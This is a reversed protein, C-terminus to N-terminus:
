FRRRRGGREAQEVMLDLRYLWGEADDTVVYLLGDPAIRVDRIRGIEGELFRQESAVRNQEIGLWILAKGALAGVWLVSGAHGEAIALGSPAVRPTWVHLPQEMGERATGGPVPEGSYHLGHSIVPWGYNRGAVILNLEDGGLPGNEHSWLLNSRQDLALGLPNRHGYSWIEPRAGPTGVFPNDDPVSGDTRIRVIKGAHHSLDQAREHEWRDGLTLFLHGDGTVVMRGGFQQPRRAPTSEFIVAKDVLAVRARDLRARLVRVRSREETGYVYSLYVIGNRAFGHDLAVDLLGAQGETLISPLGAVERASLGPRILQLRGARETLLVSGDPLFAFSWPFEFPGAIPEADFGGNFEASIDARPDDKDAEPTRAAAPGPPDVAVFSIL